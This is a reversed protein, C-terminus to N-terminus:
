RGSGTGGAPGVRVVYYDGSRFLIRGAAPQQLVFGATRGQGILESALGGFPEVYSSRQWVEPGTVVVDVGYPALVADMDDFTTAYAARLSAEIRPRLREYYGTMFAISMETSALVSKRSRLPVYDALDPHAAVLTDAPMGALYAYVQELGSRQPTQWARMAHPMLAAAVVLPALAALAVQAWRWTAERREQPVRAVLFQLFAFGAVALVVCFFAGLALRSHRNPLYLAFLVLRAAWWLGLGSLAILWAARPILRRQGLAVAAALAVVCAAIVKPSWGLGTRHHTFWYARWGEGWLQQRGGPGFEPLSMAQAYTVMPGVNDPTGSGLVILGLALVGCVANWWWDPPMRREGVLDMLFVLGSALGLVAITVPYVLAAALWAVGVWRYRRAVLGWFCLLTIPLAFSRQFGMPSILDTQPLLCALAVVCLLGTVQRRESQLSAGLLWALAGSLAVLVFSVWEAVRQADFWHALVAYLARYGRPAVSDSAFYEISLDHPFLAPDAYRYFWFVHHAADGSFVDDRAIYPGTWLVAILFVCFAASAMLTRGANNIAEPM